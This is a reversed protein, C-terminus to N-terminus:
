TDESESSESSESSASSEDDRVKHDAIKVGSASPPMAGLHLKVFEESTLCSFKNHGKEWTNAKNSNHAAIEASKQQFLFMRYRDENEEYSVGHLAKWALYEARDADKIALDAFIVTVLIAFLVIKQM